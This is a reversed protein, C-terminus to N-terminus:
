HTASKFAKVGMAIAIAGFILLGLGAETVGLASLASSLGSFVAAIDAPM